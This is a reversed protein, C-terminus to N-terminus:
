VIRDKETETRRSAVRHLGDVLLGVGTGMALGFPGFLLSAALLRTALAEPPIDVGKLRPAAVAFVMYM